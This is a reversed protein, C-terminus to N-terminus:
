GKKIYFLSLTVPYNFEEKLVLDCATSFRSNEFDDSMKKYNPDDKNQEDVIKAMKKM